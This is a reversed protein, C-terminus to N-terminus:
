VNQVFNEMTKLFPTDSIVFGILASKWYEEQEKLDDRVIEVCKRGEKISSPIYSLPKGKKGARNDQLNKLDSFQLKRMAPQSTSAGGGYPESQISSQSESDSGYEGIEEEISQFRAPLFTVFTLASM